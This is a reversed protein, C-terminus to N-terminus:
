SFRGRNVSPLRTRRSREGCIEAGSGAVLAIPITATRRTLTFIADLIDFGHDIPVYLLSGTPHSKEGYQLNADLTFLDIYGLYGLGDLQGDALADGIAVLNGDSSIAGDLDGGTGLGKIGGFTDAAADYLQATGHDQILLEGGGLAPCITATNDVSPADSRASLQLTSLDIELV